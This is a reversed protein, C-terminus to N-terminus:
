RQEIQIPYYDSLSKPNRYQEGIWNTVRLWGLKSLYGKVYGM